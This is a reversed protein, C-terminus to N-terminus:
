QGNMKSLYNELWSGSNMGSMSSPQWRQPPPDQFYGAPIRNNGMMTALDNMSYQSQPAVMPTPSNLQYNSPINRDTQPSNSSAGGSMQEQIANNFLTKYSAGPDAAKREHVQRIIEITM